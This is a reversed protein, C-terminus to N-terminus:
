FSYIDTGTNRTLAGEEVSLVAAEFALIAAQAASIYRKSNPTEKRILIGPKDPDGSPVEQAHCHLVHQSINKDRWRIRRTTVATEFQEVAKLAKAKTKTLWFEEVKDPYDAYIRGIIEQWNEPDAVLKYCGDAALLRRIRADVETYPVEWEPPAHEPKQWLGLLFLANDSLRCAVLAAAGNRVAGKFGLAFLDESARLELSDDFCAKWESEKLWTSKGEVKENFFFRRASHERTSPDNIDAWIRDINVWGGKEQAADGYVELLAPYAKDYDYIDDVYVERTDLLLGKDLTEGSQMKLFAQYSDEAVSGEGPAHANTTEISRADMKTLNNRLADALQPGHEAPV